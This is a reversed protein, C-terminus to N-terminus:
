RFALFRAFQHLEENALARLRKRVVRYFYEKETKTFLDGAQRKALLEKQRPTFFESLLLELELQRRREQAEKSEPDQVVYNRFQTKLRETSLSLNGELKVPRSGQFDDQLTSVEEKWDSSSRSLLRRTRELQAQDLGFLRFLLYSLGLLRVLRKETRESLRRERNWGPREWDLGNKERLLHALVVPFGELLRPDNQKLLNELLETGPYTSPAKLLPYGHSALEELLQKRSLKKM